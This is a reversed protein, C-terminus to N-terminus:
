LISVSPETTFSDQEHLVPTEFIGEEAFAVAVWLDEIIMVLNKM